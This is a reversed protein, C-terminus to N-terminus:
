SPRAALANLPVTLRCRGCINLEFVAEPAHPKWTLGGGGGSSELLEVSGADPDILVYWAVGQELYLAM